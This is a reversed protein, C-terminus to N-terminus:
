SASGPLGLMQLVANNLPRGEKSFEDLVVTIHNTGPPELSEISLGRERWARAFLHHLHKFIPTEDGGVAAIM